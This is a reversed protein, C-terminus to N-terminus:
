LLIVKGVEAVDFGFASNGHGFFALVGNKKGGRNQGCPLQDIADLRILRIKRFLIPHTREIQSKLPQSEAGILGGDEDHEEHANASVM